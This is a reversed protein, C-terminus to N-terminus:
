WGRGVFLGRQTSSSATIVIAAARDGRHAPGVGLRWESNIICAADAITGRRSIRKREICVGETELGAAGRRM